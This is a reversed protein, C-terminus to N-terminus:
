HKDRAILQQAIMLGDGHRNRLRQRTSVITDVLSRRKDWGESLDRWDPNMLEILAIKKARTWGKLQAERKLAVQMAEYTEWYMLKGINYRSTFGAVTKQKHEMVRGFLDNTYGIYLTKSKNSLIYVYFHSTM